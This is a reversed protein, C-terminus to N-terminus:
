NISYMNQMIFGRQVVYDLQLLESFTKVVNVVTVNTDYMKYVTYYIHMEQFSIHNFYDSNVKFHVCSEIPKSNSEKEVTRIHEYNIIYNL